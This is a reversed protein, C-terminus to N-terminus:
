GNPVEIAKFNAIATLTDCSIQEMIIGCLRIFRYESIIDETPVVKSRDLDLIADHYPRDRLILGYEDCGMTNGKWSMRFRM